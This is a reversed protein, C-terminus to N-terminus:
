RHPLLLQSGAYRLSDRPKEIRSIPQSAESGCYALTAATKTPPMIMSRMARRWTGSIKTNPLMPTATATHSAM